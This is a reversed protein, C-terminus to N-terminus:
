FGARKSLLNSKKSSINDIIFDMINRVNVENPIEDISTLFDMVLVCFYSSDFDNMLGKEKYIPRESEDIPNLFKSTRVKDNHYALKREYSVIDWDKKDIESVLLRTESSTPKNYVQRLVMGSLYKRTKGEKLIFDYAFPLRFKLLSMYPNLQEVWKQQLQMDSWVSEENIKQSDKSFGSPNYSLTRIDSILFCKNKKKWKELEIDDFYKPYITVNTLENLRVDFKQTDYLHYHYEDFLQALVYIHDGPAAGIYLIDLNEEKNLPPSLNETNLRYIFTFFESMFLKLQGWHVNVLIKNYDYPIEKDNELFYFYKEKQFTKIKLDKQQYRKIKLSDVSFSNGGRLDMKYKKKITYYKM